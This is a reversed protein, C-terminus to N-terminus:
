SPIRGPPDSLWLRGSDLVEVQGSISAATFGAADRKVRCHIRAGSPQVVDLLTPGPPNGASVAIALALSGSGCGNQTVLTATDRIWVVPLLAMELGQPPQHFLVGLAPRDTLRYREILEKAAATPDAPFPSEVLLHDIGPLEVLQHDGLQRLTKLRRPIPIELRVRRGRIEARLPQAIGSSELVLHRSGDAASAVQSRLHWALACAGNGCLEGGMMQLRALALGAAPEVFGVQELQRDHVLLRQAIERQRPRKVPQLVLATVNGSPSTKIFDVYTTAPSSSPQASQEV